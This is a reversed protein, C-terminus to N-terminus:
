ITEFAGPGLTAVFAVTSDRLLNERFREYSKLFMWNRPAVVAAVGGAVTFRVIREIVCTALDAKAAPHFRECFDALQSAQDGRGLYPVNTAVLAFKQTLMGAAAVIG